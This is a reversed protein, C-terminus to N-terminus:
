STKEMIKKLIKEEDSSIEKRKKNNSTQEENKEDNPENPYEITYNPQYEIQPYSQVNLCPNTFIIMEEVNGSLKYEKGFSLRNFIKMHFIAMFNKLSMLIPQLITSSSPIIEMGNFIKINLICWNQQVIPLNKKMYYDACFHCLLPHCEKVFFRAGTHLTIEDNPSMVQGILEVPKCNNTVFSIQNKESVHYNFEGAVIINFVHENPIIRQIIAQQDKGCPKPKSYKSKRVKHVQYPLSDELKQQWSPTLLNLAGTRKELKEVEERLINTKLIDNILIDYDSSAM